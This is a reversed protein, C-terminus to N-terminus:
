GGLRIRSTQPGRQGQYSSGRETSGYPMEASSKLEHFVLQAVRM